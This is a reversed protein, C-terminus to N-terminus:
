TEARLFRGDEGVGLELVWTFTLIRTQDCAGDRNLKWKVMALCCYAMSGALTLFGLKFLSHRTTKHQTM